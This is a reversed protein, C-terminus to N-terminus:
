FYIYNYSHHDLLSHTAKKKNDFTNLDNTCLLCNFNHVLLLQNGCILPHMERKIETETTGFYTSMEFMHESFPRNQVVFRIRM